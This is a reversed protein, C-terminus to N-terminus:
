NPPPLQILYKFAAAIHRAQHSTLSAAWAVVYLQDEPFDTQVCGFVATCAVPDQFYQSVVEFGNREFTGSIFESPETFQPGPSYLPTRRSPVPFPPIHYEPESKPPPSPARPPNPPPNYTPKQPPPNPSNSPIPLGDILANFCSQVHAAQADSLDEVWVAWDYRDNPFDLGVSDFMAKRTMPAKQFFRLVQDYDNIHFM